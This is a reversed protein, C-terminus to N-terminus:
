VLGTEEASLVRLDTHPKHVKHGLLLALEEGGSKRERRVLWHVRGLLAWSM